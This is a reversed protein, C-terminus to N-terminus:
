AEITQALFGAIASTTKIDTKKINNLLSIGSFSTCRSLAVYTQGVAFSGTGLDILINDFTKGQSKHITIAWALRMPYQTFSGVKESVIEKGEFTFNFTEWTHKYISVLKQNHLLEVIICPIGHIDTSIAKITGLTGNVWRRRQDNNLLM